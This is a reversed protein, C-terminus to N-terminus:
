SLVDRSSLDSLHIYEGTIHHKTIDLVMCHEKCCLLLQKIEWNM